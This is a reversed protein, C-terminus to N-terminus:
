DLLSSYSGEPEYRVDLGASVVSSILTTIFESHFTVRTAKGTIEASPILKSIIGVKTLYPDQGSASMPLSSLAWSNIINIDDTHSTIFVLDIDRIDRDGSKDSWHGLPITIGPMAFIKNIDYNAPFRGGTIHNAVKVLYKAAATKEDSATSAAAAALISTYYSQPGYSEVDVSLIPSQPFLQSIGAWVQDATYSKNTFDIRQGEGDDIKSLINLSGVNVKKDTPSFTSLWMNKNTMVLSSVVGLLMYGITPVVSAISTTIVHPRFRIGYQQAMGPPTPLAVNEPLADVFGSVSSLVKKAIDANPINFNQAQNNFLCLSIKWDSRTPMCLENLSTAKSMSAEFRLQKNKKEAVAVAINLDQYNKSDMLAEVYCANYALTAVMPAIQDIDPHGKHLVLGDVAQFEEGSNYELKLNAIIEKHLLSNIAEDATYIIPAGGPIKSAQTWEEIIEHATLPKRGTSELLITYYNVTNNVKLTVVITSYALKTFTEKDFIHVSPSVQKTAKAYYNVLAKAVNNTYESGQNSNMLGTLSNEFTLINGLDATSANNKTTDVKVENGLGKNSIDPQKQDEGIHLAM